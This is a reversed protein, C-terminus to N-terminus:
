RDDSADAKEPGFRGALQFSLAPRDYFNFLVFDLMQNVDYGREKRDREFLDFLAADCSARVESREVRIARSGFQTRPRPPPELDRVPAEMRPARDPLFHEVADRVLARIEDGSCSQVTELRTALEDVREVLSSLQEEMQSIQVNHYDMIAANITVRVAGLVREMLGHPMETDPSDRFDDSAIDSGEISFPLTYDKDVTSSESPEGRSRREEDSIPWLGREKWVKLKTVRNPDNDTVEALAEEEPVDARVLEDMRLRIEWTQDAIRQTINETM